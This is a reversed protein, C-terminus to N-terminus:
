ITYILEKLNESLTLLERTSAIGLKQCIRNRLSYLNKCSRGTLLSVLHMNQISFFYPLILRECESLTVKKRRVMGHTFLGIITKKLERMTVKSNVVRCNINRMLVEIVRTKKIECIYIVKKNKIHLINHKCTTLDVIALDTLDSNFNSLLNDVGMKLYINTTFIEYM